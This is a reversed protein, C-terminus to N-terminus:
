QAPTAEMMASALSQGNLAVYFQRLNARLATCEAPEGAIDGAPLNTMQTMMGDAPAAAMMAKEMDDMSMSMMGVLGTMQTDDMMSNSMNADMMKTMGDFLPAFQGYDFDTLKFGSDMAMNGAMVKDMVAAYDFHYEATYLSLILDADCAITGHDMMTADPMATADQAFVGSAGVVLTLVFVLLALRTLNRM